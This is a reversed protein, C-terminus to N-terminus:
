ENGDSAAERRRERILEDTLSVGEPVHRAIIERVRRVETEDSVVRLEGGEIRMFVRCGKEIGLAARYAAPIVIQGGSGVVVRVQDPSEDMAAPAQM